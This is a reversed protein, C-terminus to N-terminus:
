RRRGLGGLWESRRRGSRRELRGLLDDHLSIDVDGILSIDVDGILSIDVDSILSIDVDGRLRLDIRRSGAGATLGPLVDRWLRLERLVILEGLLEHAPVGLVVDHHDSPRVVVVVVEDPVPHPVNPIAAHPVEHDARHVVLQQLLEDFVLHGREGHLAPERRLVKAPARLVEVLHTALLDLQDVQERLHAKVDEHGVHVGNPQTIWERVHGLVGVRVHQRRAVM